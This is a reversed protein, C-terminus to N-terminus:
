GKGVAESEYVEGEDGGLEQRREFAKKEREKFVILWERERQIFEAVIRLFALAGGVCVAGGVLVELETM